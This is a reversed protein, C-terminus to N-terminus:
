TNSLACAPDSGTADSRVLVSSSSRTPWSVEGTEEAAM